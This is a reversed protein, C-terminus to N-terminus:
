GVKFSMMDRFMQLQNEYHIRLKESSGFFVATSMRRVCLITDEPFLQLATFYRAIETDAFYMSYEDIANDPTYGLADSLKIFGENEYIDNYWNPDILCIVTDGAIIQSSFLSRNQILNASNYVVVKGAAAASKKEADIQEQTMLLISVLQLNKEGDGNFDDSMVSRLANQVERTENPTFQHPGGYLVVVDYEEKAIMQGIIVAGVVIFFM